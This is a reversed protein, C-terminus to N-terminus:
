PHPTIAIVTIMRANPGYYWFVRYAAPTKNEVYSEWLKSGNPGKKTHFEHSKLSPHRPNEALKQLTRNVKEFRVPDSIRLALFATKAEETLIVELSNAANEAEAVDKKATSGSVSKAPRKKPPM